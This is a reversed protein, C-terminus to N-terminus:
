EGINRGGAPVKREIDYIVAAGTGSIRYRYTEQKEYKVPVRYTMILGNGYFTKHKAEGGTQSLTSVTMETGKELRARIFIESIGKKEYIGEYLDCSEFFWDPLNEKFDSERRHKKIGDGVSIYIDRGSGCIYKIGPAAERLWIGTRTDYTLMERSGDSRTGEAYYKGNQSFAICSIYDCHINESICEPLGGTYAYFADGSCFYLVGNIDCASRIDICGIGTITKGVSFDYATDGYIVTISNEKFCLLADAFSKLGVFSGPTMVNIEVSDAGTNQFSYFDYGSGLATCIVSSGDLMGGWVRNKYIEPKAIQPMLKNKLYIGGVEGANAYGSAITGDKKYYRIDAQWAGSSTNSGWYHYEYFDAYVPASSTIEYEKKTFNMFLDENGPPGAIVCAPYGTITSESAATNKSNLFNGETQWLGYSNLTGGQIYARDDYTLQYQQYCVKCLNNTKETRDYPDYEYLVVRGSQRKEYIYLYKNIMYMYIESNTEPTYHSGSAYNIVSGNWYLVGNAVGCFGDVGDPKIIAQINTYQAYQSDATCFGSSTRICPYESSINECDAFCGEPAAAMHNIGKFERTVIKGAARGSGQPYEM